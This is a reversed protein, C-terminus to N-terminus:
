SVASRARSFCAICPHLSREYGSAVLAVSSAAARRKAAALPTAAPVNAVDNCDLM